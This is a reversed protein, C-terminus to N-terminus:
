WNSKARTSSSYNQRTMFTPLRFSVKRKQSIGPGPRGSLRDPNSLLVKAKQCYTDATDSWTIQDIFEEDAIDQLLRFAEFGRVIEPIVSEGCREIVPEIVRESVM